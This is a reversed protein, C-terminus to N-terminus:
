DRGTLALSTDQSAKEWRAVRTLKKVESKNVTLRVKVVKDKTASSATKHKAMQILEVVEEGRFRLAGRINLITDGIKKSPLRLAGKPSPIDINWM